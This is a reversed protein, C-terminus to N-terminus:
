RHSLRSQDARLHIRGIMASAEPADHIVSLRPIPHLRTRREGHASATSRAHLGPRNDPRVATYHHRGHAAPPAAGLYRAMGADNRLQFAGAPLQNGQEDGADRPLETVDGPIDVVAWHWFGSATPADPDYCTVAFSRTSDPFASWALQPSVEEGGAGFIGSVQRDTTQALRVRTGYPQAHRFRRSVNRVLSFLSRFTKRRNSICTTTHTFCTGSVVSSRTSGSV